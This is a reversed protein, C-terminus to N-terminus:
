LNLLLDKLVKKTKPPYNYIPKGIIFGCIQEFNKIGLYDNIEDEIYLTDCLICSGLGLNVAQLSMNEIACGLSIYDPKKYYINKVKSKYTDSYIMIMKNSTKIQEATGKVSTRENPNLKDWEFLMNMIHEKEEDNLIYFKWPQRNRASPALSGSSIISLLQEKSVEDDTFLRASRRNNVVENFNM